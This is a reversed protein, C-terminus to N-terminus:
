QFKFTRLVAEMYRAFKRKEKDPAYIFGELYIINKNEKDTFTYSIFPGGMTNNSLKWLGRAEICYSNNFNTKQYQVPIYDQVQMYSEGPFVDGTRGKLYKKGVSDRWARINKAKFQNKSRYPKYSIFINEDIGEMDRLWVFRSTDMVKQFGPPITLSFGHEKSIHNAISRTKDSYTLKKQIRETEKRHFYNYLINKNERINKLLLQEDKAFLYLVSQGSAFRDQSTHMFWSTDERIKKLSSDSFYTQLKQGATSKNDLTLVILLNKHRRTLANANEPSTNIIDFAPQQKPLVPYPAAYINQIAEGLKGDWQNPDIIVMLKGQGGYSDPLLSQDKKEKDETSSRCSALLLMVYIIFFFRRHFVGM